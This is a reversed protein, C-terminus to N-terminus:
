SRGGTSHMERKIPDGDACGSRVFRPERYLLFKCPNKLRLDSRGFVGGRQGGRGLQWGRGCSYNGSAGNNALSGLAEGRRVLVFGPTTAEKPARTLLQTCARL